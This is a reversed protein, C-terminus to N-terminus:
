HFVPHVKLESMFDWSVNYTARKYGIRDLPNFSPFTLIFLSSKRSNKKMEYNCLPLNSTMISIIILVFNAQNYFTFIKNPFLANTRLCNATVITIAKIFEKPISIYRSQFASPLKIPHRLINWSLLTVFTQLLLGIKM